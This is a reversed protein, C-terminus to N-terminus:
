LWLALLLKFTGFHGHLVGTVLMTSPRMMM